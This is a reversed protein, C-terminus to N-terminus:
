VHNHEVERQLGLIIADAIHMGPFNKAFEAIQPQVIKPRSYQAAFSQKNNIKQVKM